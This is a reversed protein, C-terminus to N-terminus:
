LCPVPIGCSHWLCAAPIICFHWLCTIRMIRKKEYM